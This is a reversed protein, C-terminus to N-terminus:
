VRPTAPEIGAGGVMCDVNARAGLRASEFARKLAGLEDEAQDLLTEASQQGVQVKRVAGIHGAIFAKVRDFASFDTETVGDATDRAVAEIADNAAM